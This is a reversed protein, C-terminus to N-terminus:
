VTPYLNLNKKTQINWHFSSIIIILLVNILLLVLVNQIIWFTSTKLLTFLRYYLDHKLCFLLM